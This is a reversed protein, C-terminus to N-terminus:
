RVPPLQAATIPPAWPPRHILCFPHGAPDAFVDGNLRGAGLEIVKPAADDIDDVMIDLHFQQPIEPNPWDPPRHNVVLQFAIGSSTDNAAVVVWDTSTYTIPLGLLASYFEALVQPDPCDIVVHHLRGIM